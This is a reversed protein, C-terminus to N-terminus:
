LWLITYLLGTLKAQNWAKLFFFFFLSLLVTQVLNDEVVEM